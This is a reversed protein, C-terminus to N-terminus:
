SAFDDINDIITVMDSEDGENLTSSSSSNSSSSSSSNSSSSNNDSSSSSSSSSNSGSSSSSGSSPNNKSSGSNSSSSNSSSSSSNNSSNGSSSNDSNSGSQGSDSDKTYQYGNIYLTNNAIAWQNQPVSSYNSDTYYEFTMPTTSTGDSSNPTVTLKNDKDITYTGSVGGIECTGDDNFKANVNDSRGGWNGVVDKKPETSASGSSTSSSESNSCGCGTLIAGGATLILASFLIVALKKMSVSGIYNNKM